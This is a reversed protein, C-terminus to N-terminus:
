KYIEGKQRKYKWMKSKNEIVVDYSFLDHRLYHKPFPSCYNTTEFM